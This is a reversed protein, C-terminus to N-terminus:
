EGLLELAKKTYHILMKLFANDLQCLRAALLANEAGFLSAPNFREALTGLNDKVEAELVERDSVGTVTIYGVVRPPSNPLSGVRAEGTTLGVAPPPLGDATQGSSGRHEVSESNM